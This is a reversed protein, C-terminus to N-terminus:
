KHSRLYSVDGLRQKRTQEVSIDAIGVSRDQQRFGLYLVSM